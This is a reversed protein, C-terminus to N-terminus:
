GPNEEKQHNERFIIRQTAWFSSRKGSNTPVRPSVKPNQNFQSIAIKERYKSKENKNKNKIKYNLKTTISLSIKKITFQFGRNELDNSIRDPYCSKILKCNRPKIDASNRSERKPTQFCIHCCNNPCKKEDYIFLFPTQPTWQTEPRQTPNHPKKYPKNNTHQAFM